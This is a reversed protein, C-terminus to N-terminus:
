KIPPGPYLVDNLASNTILCLHITEALRDRRLWRVQMVSRSRFRLM